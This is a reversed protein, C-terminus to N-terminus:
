GKLMAISDRTPIYACKKSVAEGIRNQSSKKLVHRILNYASGITFLENRKENDLSEVNVASIIRTHRSACRKIKKFGDRGKDVKGPEDCLRYGEGPECKYVRGTEKMLQRFATYLHGRKQQVNVGTAKQIAQYSFFKQEPKETLYRKIRDTDPHNEYTLEKDM